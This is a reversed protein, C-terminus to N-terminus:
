GGKAPEAPPTAPATVPPTTAPAAPTTAPVTPQAAPETTPPTAPQTTPQAPTTQTAPTEGPTAAPPTAPAAAPTAGPTAEAQAAPTQGMNGTGLKDKNPPNYICIIGQIEIPIDMPSKEWAVAAGPMAGMGPGMMGGMAGGGRTVPGGYGPPMGVRGGGGAYGPPMGGPGYGPPMGVPGYGPPMGGGMPPGSTMAGGGGAGAAGGLDVVEGKDPNIRVRRVEIPMASNACEVLLKAIKRQDIYLKMSIPMMKFEPFAASPDGTLPNGKDDVYRNIMLTEKEASDDAGGAAATTTPPTVAATTAPITADPTTADTAAVQGGRFVKGEAARWSVVANAGIELSDIHKIAAKSHETVNENTNRIVRLLSLTVWIDEQALRLKIDSPTTQWNLKSKLREIDNRDWDVTGVMEVAKPEGSAPAALATEDKPHRWDAEKLLTPFYEQIFTMYRGRLKYPIQENPKLEKITDLFEKGLVEPWPNKEQQQEYLTKWAALVKDKLKNQEVELSKLYTENPHSAANAIAQVDTFNKDIKSKKEKIETAVSNTAKWWCGLVVLVTLGILFWFGFKKMFDLAPKLKDM